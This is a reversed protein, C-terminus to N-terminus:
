QQKPEPGHYRGARYNVACLGNIAVWGEEDGRM